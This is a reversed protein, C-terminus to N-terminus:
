FPRWHGGGPSPHPTPEHARQPPRVTPTAARLHLTRTRHWKPLSAQQDHGSTTQPPQVGIVVNDFTEFLYLCTVTVGSTVGADAFVGKIVAGSTQLDELGM